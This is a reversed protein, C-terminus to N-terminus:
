NESDVNEVCVVSDSGWFEQELVNVQLKRTKRESEEDFVAVQNARMELEHRM